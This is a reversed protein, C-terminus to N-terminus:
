MLKASTAAVPVGRFAQFVPPTTGLLNPINQVREPCRPKLTTIVAFLENSEALDGTLRETNRPPNQLRVNQKHKEPPIIHIVLNQKTQKRYM